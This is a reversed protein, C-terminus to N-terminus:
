CSPWFKPNAVSYQHIFYSLENLLVKRTDVYEDAAFKNDVEPFDLVLGIREDQTKVLYLWASVVPRGTSKDVVVPILVADDITYFLINLFGSSDASMCPGLGKEPLLLTSMDKLCMKITFAQFNIKGGVKSDLSQNEEISSINDKIAQALSYIKEPLNKSIEKIIGTCYGKIKRM